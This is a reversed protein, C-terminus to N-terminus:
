YAVPRGQVRTLARKTSVAFGQPERGHCEYPAQVRGRVLVVATTSSPGKCAQSGTCLGAASCHKGAQKNGVPSSPAGAPTGVAWAWSSSSCPCSSYRGQPVPSHLSRKSYCLSLASATSPSEYACSADVRLYSAQLCVAGHVLLLGLSSSQPGCRQQAVMWLVRRHRLLTPIMMSVIPYAVDTVATAAPYVM